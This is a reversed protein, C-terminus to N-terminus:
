QYEVFGFYLQARIKSLFSAFEDPRTFQGPSTPAFILVVAVIYFLLPILILTTSSMPKEILRHGARIVKGLIAEM